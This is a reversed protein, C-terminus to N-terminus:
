RRRPRDLEGLGLPEVALVDQDGRWPTATCMLAKLKGAQPNASFAAQASSAPMGTIVLGAVAVASTSRAPSRASRRLGAEEGLARQLEDDARGAVQEVVQPRVVDEREGARRVGRRPRRRSGVEEGGVRPHVDLGVAQVRRHEAGVDLVAGGVKPRNRGVHHALHGLLGALLAGGHAAHEHGAVAGVGHLLRQDGLEASTTTPLGARRRRHPHAREGGRLLERSVTPPMASSVCAARITWPVPLRASPTPAGSPLPKKTSGVRSRPSSARLAPGTWWCSTKPGTAM